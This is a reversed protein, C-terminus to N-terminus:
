AGARPNGATRPDLPPGGSPEFDPGSTSGRARRPSESTPAQTGGGTGGATGGASRRANRARTLEAPEARGDIRPQGDAWAALEAMRWRTARAGLSIPRPFSPDHRLKHITRVGVGLLEAARYVDVLLPEM